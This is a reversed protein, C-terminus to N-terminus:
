ASVGEATVGHDAAVTLLVPRTLVPTLSNQILGVPLALSELCGLSGVPKAKNDLKRQLPATLERNLAPIDIEPRSPKTPNMMGWM